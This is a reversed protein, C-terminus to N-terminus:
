IPEEPARNARNRWHKESTSTWSAAGTKARAASLKKLYDQSAAVAAQYLDRHLVANKFYIMGLVLSASGKKGPEISASEARLMRAAEHYHRREYLKMARTVGDSAAFAQVAAMLIVSSLLLGLRRM